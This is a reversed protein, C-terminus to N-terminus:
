RWLTTMRELATWPTAGLGQALTLFTRMAMGHVRRTVEQGIALVDLPALGLRDCAHYHQVAVEIPLWTGAVSALVAAHHEAPLLTLYRHMLGRAELAALSSRLWTSRVRTAVPARTRGAAGVLTLAPPLYPAPISSPTARYREHCPPCRAEVRGMEVNRRLRWGYVLSIMTSWDEDSM